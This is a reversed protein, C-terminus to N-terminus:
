PTRERYFLNHIISANRSPDDNYLIVRVVTGAPLAPRPPIKSNAQTFGSGINDCLLVGDVYLEARYFVSSNTWFEQLEWVMGVPVTRDFPSLSTNTGFPIAGSDQRDNRAFDDYSSIVPVSGTISVTINSGPIQVTTSM